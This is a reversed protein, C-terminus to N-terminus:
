SGGGGILKPVQEIGTRQIFKKVVRVPTQRVSSKTKFVFNTAAGKLIASGDIVAVFLNGVGPDEFVFM